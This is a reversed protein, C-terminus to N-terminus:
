SLNLVYNDLILTTSDHQSVLTKVPYIEWHGDMVKTWKGKGLDVKIM